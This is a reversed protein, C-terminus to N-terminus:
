MVEYRVTFQGLCAKAAEIQQKNDLKVKTDLGYIPHASIEIEAKIDAKTLVEEFCHTIAHKKLEPKYVKGVATLPMADLIHIEKPIAVFESIHENAFQSLEDSSVPSDPKLEVYLVPLEGAYVDPKGVAAAFAICPHTHMIEEISKPDINHGSRIIMEKERGTLYLYGDEDQYGLDGTNLWKKGKNDIIWLDTNQVELKYGSFVNEGRIVLIGTENPMCRTITPLEEQETDNIKIIEIQQMPLRLGISGTKREGEPPNVSSVSTAETLGYGELIKIGSLAEFDKFLQVPMPAAGCIGFELSSIDHGKTSHNLLVSYVTPVAAFFNVKHTAVIKWFNAFVGDGKFGQPSALIVHAGQMFPYLGTALVANVHFLPLGCLVTTKQKVTNEGFMALIQQCNAVENAHTRMAIKPLGTTGGTCFFSSYENPQIARKSDLSQSNELNIVQEYRHYKIHKPMSAQIGKLGYLSLEEKKQLLQAVKGKLGSIQHALNITIIHELDPLEPLIKATKQWLDVKPFPALTVLIKVGAQKLLGSIAEPELLPNVPMVIGAAEAGWLCFHTQALNPLILAIVTDKKAGLRHLLNATKTTNEFLQQYNFTQLKKCHSAQLMLSLAPLDGFKNASQKLLDYTNNADPSELRLEQEFQKIDDLCRIGSPLTTM